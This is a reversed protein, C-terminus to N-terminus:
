YELTSVDLDCGTITKALGLNQSLYYQCFIRFDVSKTELFAKEDGSASSLKDQAHLAGVMLRWAVILNGSFNLFDACHQLVANVKNQKMMEGMKTLIEMAKQMSSGMMEVEKKWEAVSSAKALDKQIKAGLAQFTKGGDKLIKRMVFDIAQIGNTGEYIAAIKIDRIFQEMGYEQCYGYGGHMQVAESAIKMAEDTSYSKCVPTLLAIEAESEHSKKDFLSGAYLCLARLGRSMARMKFLNKRVDPHGIIETGFQARERVYQDTMLYALNAQAEGQLGCLLRAENMMIFMNAMGDLEKGILWGECNDQGGFILECTSSGHIGMKEEVKSCIVDNPSGLSGDANIRIKPVIFLSIGKTGAPAGPTRALVLHILNDYIDNDGSSIFIKQGKIKYRGNGIPTASSRLAGVDSGASAETLCMTGGWRGEMMPPVFINKQEDSGVAKIVNMNGKTLGPYMMWAPNAGTALSTCCITIAEPVPMGAWEEPQGLAYWGNEYYKKLSSLYCPPVTVKGNQLKVGERDGKERTPYVENGVFKYFQEVIEKLEGEGSGQANKHVELVDFLNFFIDNLDARYQAM